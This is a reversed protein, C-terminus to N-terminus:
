PLAPKVMEQKQTERRGAVVEYFLETIREVAAEADGYDMEFAPLETALDAALNFAQLGGMHYNFSNQTLRVFNESRSLARLKLAAGNSFKAYIVLAPRAEEKARNIHDGPPSVHAVTGKRTGVYEPGIRAEPIETRVVGISENKLPILRPFPVVRRDSPRVLAFEDSLFRWGRHALFTAVTSKGSGPLGPLLVALGDKELVAAHFQVYEHVRTAVCWNLAWEVHPLAQGSPFDALLVDHDYRVAEKRRFRGHPSATVHADAISPTNVLPYDPYIKSLDKQYSPIRSAVCFVFPGVEFRLGQGLQAALADQSLRHITM